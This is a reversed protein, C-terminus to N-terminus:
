SIPPIVTHAALTVASSAPNELVISIESLIAELSALAETSDRQNVTLWVRTVIVKELWDEKVNSLLRMRAFNDLAHCALSPSKDNLKRIHHMMLKFNLDSLIMSCSMRNLANGYSTSDFSENTSASLIDLRLISVVLRNGMTQELTDLLSRAKDTADPTQLALNAKILSEAISLSLESINPSMKDLEQDDIVEYSRGLWKVANEYQQKDLFDNGMEFLVDALSEATSPDFTQQCSMSKKYMHEAM